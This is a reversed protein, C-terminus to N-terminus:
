ACMAESIREEGYVACGLVNPPYLSSVERRNVADDYKSGAENNVLCSSGKSTNQKAYELRGMFSLKVDFIAGLNAIFIRLEPVM